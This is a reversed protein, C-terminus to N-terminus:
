REYAVTLIDSSMNCQTRSIKQEGPEIAETKSGVDRADNNWNNWQMGRLRDQKCPM